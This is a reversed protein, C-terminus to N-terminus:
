PLTVTISSGYVTATTVSVGWSWEDHADWGAFLLRQGEVLDLLLQDGLAALATEHRRFVQELGHGDCVHSSM